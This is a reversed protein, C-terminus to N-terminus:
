NNPKRGSVTERCHKDRNSLVMNDCILDSQLDTMAGTCAGKGESGARINAM